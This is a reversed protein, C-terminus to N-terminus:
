LYKQNLEVGLSKKDSERERERQDLQFYDSKIIRGRGMKGKGNTSENNTM